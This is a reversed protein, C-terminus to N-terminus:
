NLMFSPVWFFFRVMQWCAATFRQLFNLGPVSLDLLQSVADPSSPRTPQLITFLVIPHSCNFFKYKAPDFLLSIFGLVSTSRVSPAAAPAMQYDLGNVGSILAQMCLGVLWLLTLVGAFSGVFALILIM